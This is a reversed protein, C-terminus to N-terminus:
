NFFLFCIFVGLIRDSRAGVKSLCLSPQTLFYLTIVMFENIWGMKGDQQFDIEYV